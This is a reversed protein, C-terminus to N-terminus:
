PDQYLTHPDRKRIGSKTTEPRTINIKKQYSEFELQLDEVRKHIVLSRTFMRLAIIFDSVDDGSLNTMRNHVVLLLMDKIDNIHLRPFDGEKFGYLDNDARRVIIEHLYGYGHKKQRNGIKVLPLPKTLDFSSDGDKPNEWDLKQKSAVNEKPEENDNCSNEEQDHPMDSYTVEFEPEESHVSKSSSKSKSKDGKSSSSQSEKAKPGKPPKSDKRTKRKKLGRDSGASPDEYKDKNKDMKDIFIKNLEFEILTVAAEYSSQPQTSEEKELSTVKKNFQFVSAVDPLTSSPNTAKTTPPPTPSSQQPPPTFSPLSQPITTSFVLSSNTIVSVPIAFNLFKAALDSSHSSSTVPVKTKQIITSLTVHADEIVQLIKPNENMAADISEEKVFGKDTDVPENLRIDVDDYLLSTTYDVEEYEDGEVKDAVKTEDEDDSDNSPTKVIKDDEEKEDDEIKEKDEEQDSKFGLENTEHESDSKNENDSQTKDDNSAKEQDSGDSKSDQDNNNDDEDNGLVVQILRTFISLRKKRVEENKAEETLAMDLLLKIGKGRAVDVKEKKKSVPIEPTERIFFGRTPAQKAPRKVRKSKRTPEETSVLVTTLKPSAPKKFKRVNEMTHMQDVVVDNLSHIEGTHGLDKLFSVIEEDTPLAEFDQGQVRPCIKFIDTFVDLTLKFRKRKDIKFRYFTDHKYISDWFLHMYVEPVDATILFAFYCPTLAFSDLVVQFTPERQIKRPNLRENCKRIDLRKEKPILELDLKTQQATISSM